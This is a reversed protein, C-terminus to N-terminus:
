LTKQSFGFVGSLIFQAAVTLVVLGSLKTFIIIFAPRLWKSCFCALYFFGFFTLMILVGVAYAYVQQTVNAADAKGVMISSIAGPGVITPFALPTISIDKKSSLSDTMKGEFCVVHLMDWGLKGLLLGASIQFAQMQVGIIDLVCNGFAVALLLLASAVSLGKCAIRWREQPTYVSTMGIFLVATLPPSCTAFVKVYLSLFYRLDDNMSKM